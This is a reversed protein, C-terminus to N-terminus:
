ERHRRCSTKRATVLVTDSARAVRDEGVLTMSYHTLRGSAIWGVLDANATLGEPGVYVWDETMFAAVQVADNGVV